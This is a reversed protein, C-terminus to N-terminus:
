DSKNHDWWLDIANDHLGTDRTPAEDPTSSSWSAPPSMATLHEPWLSEPINTAQYIARMISLSLEAQDVTIYITLPDVSTSFMVEVTPTVGRAELDDLTKRVMDPTLM